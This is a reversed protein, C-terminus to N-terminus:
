LGASHKGSIDSIPYWYNRISFPISQQNEATHKKRLKCRLGPADQLCRKTSGTLFCLPPHFAERDRGGGLTIHRPLRLLVSQSCCRDPSAKRLRRRLLLAMDVAIVALRQRPSRGPEAMRRLPLTLLGPRRHKEPDATRSIDGQVSLVVSIHELYM